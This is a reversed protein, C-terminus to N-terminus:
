PVLTMSYQGTGVISTNTGDTATISYAASTTQFYDALASAAAENAALVIGTADATVVTLVQTASNNPLIATPTKLALVAANLGTCDFVTGDSNKPIFKTSFGTAIGSFVSYTMSLGTNQPVTPLNAM